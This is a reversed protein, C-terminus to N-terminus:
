TQIAPPLPPATSQNLTELYPMLGFIIVCVLAIFFLAILLLRIVRKHGTEIADVDKLSENDQQISQHPDITTQTM